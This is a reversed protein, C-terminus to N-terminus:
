GREQSIQKRCNGRRVLLGLVPSVLLGTILALLMFVSVPIQPTPWGLFLLSVAQQNELVFALVGLVVVLLVMVLVVRRVGRM